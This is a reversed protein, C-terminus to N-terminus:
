GASRAILSRSRKAAPEAKPRRAAVAPKRAPETVKATSAELAHVSSDRTQDIRRAATELEAEVDRKAIAKQLARWSRVSSAM